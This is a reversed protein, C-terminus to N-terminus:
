GGLLRRRFLTDEANRVEGNRAALESLKIRMQRAVVVTM